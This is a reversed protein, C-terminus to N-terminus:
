IYYIIYSIHYIIYSIYHIIYMIHPRQLPQDPTQIYLNRKPEAKKKRRSDTKRRKRQGGLAERLRELAERPVPPYLTSLAGSQWRCWRAGRTTHAPILGVMPLVWGVARVRDDLFSGLRAVWRLSAYHLEFTESPMRQTKPSPPTLTSLAGSQWRCWRAGRTTHAPILGVMPLVWGVARVCM